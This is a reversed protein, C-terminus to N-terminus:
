LLLFHIMLTEPLYDSLCHILLPQPPPILSCECYKEDIYWEIRNSYENWFRSKMLDNLEIANSNVIHIM